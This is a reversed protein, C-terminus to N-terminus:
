QADRLSKYYDKDYDEDQNPMTVKALGKTLLLEAIDGQSHHIRGLVNRHDDVRQFTVGVIQNLLHNEITTKAEEAIEKEQHPVFMHNFNVKVQLELSEVYINMSHGSFVYEVVAKFPRGAEKSKEIAEQPDFGGANSYTINRVHKKLYAQDKSYVKTEKHQFKDVAQLYETLYKSSSSDESKKMIVRVYGSKALELNINKGEIFLTGYERGNIEYEVEFECKKGVSARRLTERALYALPEDERYSEENRIATKPAQISALLYKDEIVKGKVTKRIIIMDGSNVQRVKGKVTRSRFKKTSKKEM